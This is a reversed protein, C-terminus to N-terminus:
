EVSKIHEPYGVHIWGVIGNITLVKYAEVWKLVNVELFVFPQDQEVDDVTQSGALDVYVKRAKNYKYLKGAILM